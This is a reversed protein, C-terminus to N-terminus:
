TARYVTPQDSQIPSGALRALGEALAADDIELDPGTGRSPCYWTV